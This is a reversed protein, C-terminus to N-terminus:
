TVPATMGTSPPQVAQYRGEARGGAERATEAIEELLAETDSWGLCADTISVGYALEAGPVWPQAGAELNSELMFGLIGREGRRLRDLVERCVEPQRAPDKRSNGHSCDIMVPRALDQGEVRRLAEAVHEPGHNPGSAGGRLIVHRDLNGLTKVVAVRGDPAVGLFSHPEGAALAANAAAAISGDTGNKFGVPMSLGSAM